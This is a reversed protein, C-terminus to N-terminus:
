VKLECPRTASCSTSGATRFPGVENFGIILLIRISPAFSARLGAPTPIPQLPEDGYRLWDLVTFPFLKEAITDESQSFLLKVHDHDLKNPINEAKFLPKMLKKYNM